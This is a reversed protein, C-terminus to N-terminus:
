WPRSADQPRLRRPERNNVIGFLITQNGCAVMDYIRLSGGVLQRIRDGLREHSQQHFARHRRTLPM